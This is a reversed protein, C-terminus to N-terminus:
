SCGAQFRFVHQGLLSAIYAVIPLCFNQGSQFDKIYKRRHYMTGVNIMAVQFIKLQAARNPAPDVRKKKHFMIHMERMCAGVLIYRRTGLFTVAQNSTACIIRYSFLLM